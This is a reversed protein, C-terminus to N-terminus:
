QAAEEAFELAQLEEESLTSPDVTEPLREVTEFAPLGEISQEEPHVPYVRYGAAAYARVAKNGYKRRDRSAGVIAVSPM